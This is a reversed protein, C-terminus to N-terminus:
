IGMIVSLYSLFSYCRLFNPYLRMEQTAGVDEQLKQSTVFDEALFPKM